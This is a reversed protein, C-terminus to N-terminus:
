ICIWKESLSMPECGKIDSPVVGIIYAIEPFITRRMDNLQNLKMLNSNYTGLLNQYMLQSFEVFFKAKSGNAHAPHHHSSPLTKGWGNRGV